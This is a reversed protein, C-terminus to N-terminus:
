PSCHRAVGAAAALPFCHRPITPWLCSVTKHFFHCRCLTTSSYTSVNCGALSQLSHSSLVKAPHRAICCNNSGHARMYPKCSVRTRGYIHNIPPSFTAYRTLRARRPQLRRRSTSCWRAKARKCSRFCLARSVSCVAAAACSPTAAIDLAYVVHKKRSHCGTRGM